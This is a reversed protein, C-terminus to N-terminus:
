PRDASNSQIVVKHSHQFGAADKVMFLYMGNSLNGMDLTVETQGQSLNIQKILQGQIDFVNLQNASLNHEFPLLVTVSGDSSPNPFVSLERQIGVGRSGSGGEDCPLSVPKCIRDKCGNADEIDLCLTTTFTTPIPGGSNDIVSLTITPNQLTSLLSTGEKTWEWSTISSGSSPTSQDTVKYECSYGVFIKSQTKPDNVYIPECTVCEANFDAKIGRCRQCSVNIEESTVSVCGAENVITLTVTYTGMQNYTHSTNMTSSAECTGDGFDWLYFLESQDSCDATFLVNSCIGDNDVNYLIESTM